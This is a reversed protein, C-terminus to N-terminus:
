NQRFTWYRHSLFIGICVLGEACLKPLLAALPLTMGSIQHIIATLSAPLDPNRIFFHHFSWVLLNSLGYSATWVIWFRIFERHTGQRQKRDFTWIKNFTFSFLGGCPRSILNAAVPSFGAFYVLSGYISLDALASSFGVTVYKKLQAFWLM